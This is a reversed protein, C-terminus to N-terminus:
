IQKSVSKDGLVKAHICEYQSCQRRLCITDVTHLASRVIESKTQGIQLDFNVSDFGFISDFLHSDDKGLVVLISFSSM